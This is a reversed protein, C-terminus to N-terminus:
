IRGGGGGGGVERTYPDARSLIVRTKLDLVFRHYTGVIASKQLMSLPLLVGM